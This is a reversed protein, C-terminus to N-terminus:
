AVLSNTIKCCLLVYVFVCLVCMCLICVCLVCMFCVYDVFCYMVCCFLMWLVMGDVYCYMMWMAHNNTGCGVICVVFFSLVNLLFFVCLNGPIKSKKANKPFDNNSAEARSRKKGLWFFNFCKKKPLWICIQVIMLVFCASCFALMTVALLFFFFVCLVLLLFFFVVIKNNTQGATTWM